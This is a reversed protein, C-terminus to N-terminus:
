RQGPQPRYHVQQKSGNAILHTWEEDTFEPAVDDDVEGTLRALNLEWQTDQDQEECETAKAMEMERQNATSDIENDPLPSHIDTVGNNSETEQRDKLEATGTKKMADALLPASSDPLDGM